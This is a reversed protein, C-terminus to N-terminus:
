AHAAASARTAVPAGGASDAYRAALERLRQRIEEPLPFPERHYDRTGAIKQAILEDHMEGMLGNIAALSRSMRYAELTPEITRLSDYFSVQRSFIKRTAHFQAGTVTDRALIAQVMGMQELTYRRFSAGDSPAFRDLERRLLRQPGAALFLRCLAAERAVAGARGNKFADQLHGLATTMWDLIPPYRHRRDYLAYAFRLHKFKARAYKFALRDEADLDRDRWLKGTLVQLAETDVGTQWLQRCIAFCDALQQEDYDLRIVAPLDTHADVEDDILVAAFLADCEAQTFRRLPVTM